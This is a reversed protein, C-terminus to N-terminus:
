HLLTKKICKQALRQKARPKPSLIHISDQKINYKELEINRLCWFINCFRKAKKMNFIKSATSKNHLLLKQITIYMQLSKATKLINWANWSTRLIFLCANLNTSCKKRFFDNVVDCLLLQESFLM